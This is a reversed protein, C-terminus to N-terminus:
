KKSAWISDIALKVKFYTKQERTDTAGHVVERMMMDKKRLQRCMVGDLVDQNADMM